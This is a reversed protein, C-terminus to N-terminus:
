GMRTTAPSTAPSSSIPRQAQLDLRLHRDQGAEVWVRRRVAGHRVHFPRRARGEEAPGDDGEDAQSARCARRGNRHHARAAGHRRQARRLARDRWRACRAGEALLRERHGVVDIVRTVKALIARAPRREAAHPRAGVGARGCAVGPRRRHSRRFLMICSRTQLIFRHSRNLSPSAASGQHFRTRCSRVRLPCTPRRVSGADRHRGAAPLLAVAGSMLPCCASAAHKATGESPCPDPPPAHDTPLRGVFSPFGGSM